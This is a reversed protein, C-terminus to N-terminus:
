LVCAFTKPIRQQFLPNKVRIQQEPVRSHLFAWVERYQWRLRMMLVYVIVSLSTM